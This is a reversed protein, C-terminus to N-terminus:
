MSPTKKGSLQYARFSGLATIDEVGERPQGNADVCAGAEALFGKVLCGDELEITGFGLPAPTAAVLAGFGEVPMRYVEVEIRGGAAPGASAPKAAPAVPATSAAPAAGTASSASAADSEPSAPESDSESYSRVADAAEVEAGACSCSEPVVGTYRVLGPKVPDTPLAFLRYNPATRATGVFEAGADELQAHLALGRMHLGCVAVEVSRAAAFAEAAALLTAQSGSASFLTIGFPVDPEAQGAPVDVAALDCLNCHNTYLGMLSNTAIPDARVEDRSFTGGCTPLALVAHKLLVNARQRAAQVTHYASFADAATLDPRDGSELITRTVPFVDDAHASVFSGLDAWREAVWPGDYLIAAIDSLWTTDIREVRAGVATAARELQACADRWRARYGEAFRGYFRPEEAPVYVAEVDGSGLGITRSWPCRGDFGSAVADVARCDSLSHAFVTVCDLSACAPVVGRTSWSGVPPKFGVLGNLAAPVRGSGATDTGLAFAAMGLAVAVASGSSSGGSVLEPRLANKCEGYPSRTGVLGTAFQDLNAKGVPFAGAAVLRAVVTADQEPTYAFAPCGATTPVGAVDINDKVAFPVGWLPLSAREGAGMAELRSLYPEMFDLTPPTIWVNHDAFREAREAIGRAVERPTLEGNAYAARLGAVTLHQPIYPTPM